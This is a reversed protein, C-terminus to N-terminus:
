EHLRTARDQRSSREHVIDLDFNGHVRLEYLPLLENLIEFCRILLFHSHEYQMSPALSTVRYVAHMDPFLNVEV